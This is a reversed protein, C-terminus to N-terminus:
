ATTVKRSFWLTLFIGMLSASFFTSYDGCRRGKETATEFARTIKEGVVSGMSAMMFHSDMVIIVTRSGKITCEGTIVADKSRFLM